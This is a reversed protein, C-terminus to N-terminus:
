VPVQVTCHQGSRVLLGRGVAAPRVASRALRIGLLEADVHNTLGLLLGCRSRRVDATFGRFTAALEDLAGGVVLAHGTDRGDRLVQALVDALPSDVLLEADDVVVTVPGATAALLEVLGHADQVQHAGPLDRLPSPRPALTCVRQGVAILGAALGLLATSRGSRRPGAVTFGGTLDVGLLALEDGGVAIAPRDGSLASAEHWTIRGPLPDIRFPPHAAATLGAALSALAASQALGSLEGTLQAVQLERGSGARFGRGDTVVEPLERPSLGALAYDSREALRLVLTDEIAQSLKGILATRDGTVVVRLGASLGDRVLRLLTDPLRGADVEDFAATFGDWRDVLLLLYPLPADSATRQEALDGWGAAALLEQRRTIEAALRSLLRDARDPETRTVVAGTHPLDRLATLAGNGCDIAYLHVDDASTGQALSGALARLLTSRGSRTAGAVLLHGGRVLDLAATRRQQEAPADELGYPLLLPRARDLDTLTVLSPLPDLWPSRPAPLGSAAARVAEVLAHLDTAERDSGSSAAPADVHTSPPLGLTSWPVEIVAPREGAARPRRGGVRATQFPFLTSHGTRAFARGPVSRAIGAADPADLVDLSEAADTVRLAVRLNTNARIEPSVVGSPRQTALVLHVGLSRGRQAIGVLGRVFDPLEEALSAFEDIVIVLRPLAAGTQWYDEIDKAGAEQLLQERTRLEATLSSLARAVLHGDLDTVMGVTHPLRACDKFAAGGKYDVLVFTMADPRNAVALSAVLTQLLESKGAGTTGAVLVHPGDRRLDLVVPGDADLGVVAATTRGWRACVGAATPPDLQLVDLLRAATPMEVDGDTGGDRLPALARALEEAWAAIPLDPRFTVAETGHAQLEGTASAVAQCEEPLLLHRAELCIVHVGVAPGDRLVAAVGALSRLARAGDLVVLVEPLQRAQLQARVDRAAATRAAVLAALETVRAAVTEVTCGVLAGCQQEGAPAAHPLWRLWGWAQETGEQAPDALLWISLDRPGHLVAAQAVLWRALPRGPGAVGLVGVERLAVTVPVDELPEASGTGLRYTSPSRAGTGLRLVLADDDSRRREWLRPGPDCAISLLAAPDPSAEHRAATEALRLRVVEAALQAVEADHAAARERATRRSQGRDSWWSSLAMVPSLLTFLLFLPNSLVAMLVGLLVPVLLPVVPLRRGAVTAPAEPVQLSVTAAAARLRPPRTVETQRGPGLAGPHASCLSVVRDGLDLREGPRLLRAAGDRATAVVGAPGPRLLAGALHLEHDLAHVAGADAGSVVHLVPGAHPPALPGGLGLVAGARLGCAG